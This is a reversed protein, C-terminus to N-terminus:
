IVVRRKRLSEVRPGKKTVLRAGPIAVRRLERRLGTAIPLSVYNADSIAQPM